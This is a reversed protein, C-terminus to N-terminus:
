NTESNQPVARETKEESAVATANQASLPQINVIEGGLRLIRQMEQSMRSFPVQFFQRHSTRIPAQSLTTIENQSLGTVEYVFIRNNLESVSGSSCQGLM